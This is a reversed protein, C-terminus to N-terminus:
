KLLHSFKKFVAFNEEMLAQLKDPGTWESGINTRKLFKKVDKNTLTKEFAKVLFEFREPYKEKVTM